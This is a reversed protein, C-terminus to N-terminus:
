SVSALYKATKEPDMLWNGFDAPDSFGNAFRRAVTQNAAATGLIQQVHEPMPALM